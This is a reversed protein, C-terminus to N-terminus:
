GKTEVFTGVTSGFESGAATSATTTNQSPTLQSTAIATGTFNRLCNRTLSMISDREGDLPM